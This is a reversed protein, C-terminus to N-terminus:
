QSACFVAVPVSSEKVGLPPRDPIPSARLVPITRTMLKHSSTLVEKKRGQFKKHDRVYSVSMRFLVVGVHEPQVRGVGGVRGSQSGGTSRAGGRATSGGIDLGVSGRGRDDVAVDLETGDVAGESRQLYSYFLSKSHFAGAQSACPRVRNLFSSKLFSYEPHFM